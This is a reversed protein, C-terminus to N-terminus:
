THCTRDFFLRFYVNHLFWLLRILNLQLLHLKPDHLMRKHLILCRWFKKLCCFIPLLSKRFICTSRALVCFDLKSIFKFKIENSGDLCLWAIKRMNFCFILLIKILFFIWMKNSCISSDIVKCSYKLCM